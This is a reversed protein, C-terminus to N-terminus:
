SWRGSKPPAAAPSDCGAAHNKDFMRVSEVILDEDTCSELKGRESRFMYGFRDTDVDPKMIQEIHLFAAVLLRAPLLAWGVWAPTPDLNIPKYSM